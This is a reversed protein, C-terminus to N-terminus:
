RIRGVVLDHLADDIIDFIVPLEKGDSTQKQAPKHIKGECSVLKAVTGFCFIIPVSGCFAM